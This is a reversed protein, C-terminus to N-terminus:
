SKKTLTNYFKRWARFLFYKVPNMAPPYMRFIKPVPSANNFNLKVQYTDLIDYGVSVITGDFLQYLKFLNREPIFRVLDKEGIMQMNLLPFIEKKVFFANADTAAVMEYGKKKALRYMALISSGQNVKMDRPQVFDIDAQINKNFEILAIKPQYKVMAEWVHYDNGDIDLSFFDFDKPIPTESLINDLKNPGEFNVLRCKCIAKKNDKYTEQLELFKKPDAEVLVGSWDYNQMLNYSNSIRKGDWAGIDVCWNDKKPRDFQGSSISVSDQASKVPHIIEFIKEIIGDEGFQSYKDRAFKMLWNNPKLNEM